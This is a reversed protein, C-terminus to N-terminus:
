LKVGCSVCYDYDKPNINGCGECPVDVFNWEKKLPEDVAYAISDYHNQIRAKSVEDVVREKKELIPVVGYRGRIIAEITIKTIRKFILYFIFGGLISISSMILVNLEGSYGLRGSVIFAICISVSFSLTIVFLRQVKEDKLKVM